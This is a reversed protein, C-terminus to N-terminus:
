TVGASIENMFHPVLELNVIRMFQTGHATLTLVKCETKIKMSM